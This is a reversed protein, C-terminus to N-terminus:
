VHARGIEFRRELSAQLQWSFGPFSGGLDGRLGLQWDEALQLESRLGLVTDLWTADSSSTMTHLTWPRRRVVCEVDCFRAGAFLDLHGAGFRCLEGGAGFEVFTARVAGDHITMSPADYLADATQVQVQTLDGFVSLPGRRWEASVSWGSLELGDNLGDFSDEAVGNAAVRGELGAMWAFSGIRWEPEQAAATGALCSVALPSLLFAARLPGHM